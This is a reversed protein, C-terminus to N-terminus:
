IFEILDLYSQHITLLSKKRNTQDPIWEYILDLLDGDNPMPGDFLLHPWNTGWVIREPNISILALAM